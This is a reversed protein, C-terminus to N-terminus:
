KLLLIHESSSSKFIQILLFFGWPGKLALIKSGSLNESNKLALIICNSLTHAFSKLIFVSVCWRMWTNGFSISFFLWAHFSFDDRCSNTEQTAELIPSCVQITWFDTDEKLETSLFLKLFYYCLDTLPTILLTSKPTSPINVTVTFSFFFLTFLFIQTLTGKRNIYLHGCLPVYTMYLPLLLWM